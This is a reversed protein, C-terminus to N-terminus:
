NRSFIFPIGRRGFVIEDRDKLILPTKAQLREGNVWTGNASGFDTITWNKKDFEICAHRRSSIKATDFDTLDLDPLVNHKIDRRGIMIYASNLDEKHGDPTILFAGGQPIVRAEKLRESRLGLVNGHLIGADALTGNQPLVRLGIYDTEVLTFAEEVENDLNLAKALTAALVRCSVEMPLAVDKKEDKGYELTIVVNPM